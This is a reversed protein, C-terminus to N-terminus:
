ANYCPLIRKFSNIIICIIIYFNATLYCAILIFIIVKISFQIMNDVIEIILLKSLLNSKMLQKITFKQLKCIIISVFIYCFPIAHILVPKKSIATVRPNNYAGLIVIFTLVNIERRVFSCFSRTMFYDFGEHFLM